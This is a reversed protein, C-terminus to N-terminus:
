RRKIMRILTGKPGPKVEMSDMLEEMIRLGGGRKPLKGPARAAMRRGTEEIDFGEGFDQITIELEDDHILFNIYVKRDKSKSHEMANLCAAILALRIEEIKREGLGMFEAVATATKAAALEMEPLMPITLDVQGSPKKTAGETESENLGDVGGEGKLEYIDVPMKKGKVRITRFYDVRFTERITRYVEKCLLIQDSEALDVLRSALNVPDGVVTYHMRWRSGINGALVRGTSIGIGMELPDKGVESRQDNLRHLAERMELATRIAREMEDGFSIPVGYLVMFGDGPMHNLTGNHRLIVEFIKEYYANLTAVVEEPGQRELMRTFERLDSFLVVVDREEGGLTFRTEPRLLMDVVQDSVYRKFINRIRSEESLAELAIVLGRSEEEQDKLQSVSVNVSLARADTRCELQFAQEGVGTCLVSEILDAVENNNLHDSIERYSRGVMEDGEAELIRQASRNISEIRGELDTSIVGSSLSALISQSYNKVDLINKYLRANAVAVGAQNGFSYALREDKETFGIVGGGERIEKDLVGLVGLIEQGGKMPVIMLNRFSAGTLREGIGNLIRSRGTGIAEKLIDSLRLRQIEEREIGFHAAIELKGSTEVKLMLFGSRVDLIAVLRTLVENVTDQQISAM